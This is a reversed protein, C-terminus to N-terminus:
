AAATRLARAAEVLLACALSLLVFAVVGNLVAVGATGGAASAALAQGIQLVLSWVTMTMVFVMPVATFWSRKGSRRLWVTLGLLTLAALLQNSTGFLAWFTKFGGPGTALYIALPVGATALTAVVAAVRGRRGTLEELIYRGL